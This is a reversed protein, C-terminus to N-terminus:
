YYFLCLFLFRDGSDCFINEENYLSGRISLFYVFLFILFLIGIYDYIEKCNIRNLVRVM